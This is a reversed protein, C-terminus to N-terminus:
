LWWNLAFGLLSMVAGVIMGMFGITRERGSLGSPLEPVEVAQGISDYRARPM